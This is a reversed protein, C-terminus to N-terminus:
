TYVEGFISLTLATAAAAVAYLVEGKEIWLEGDFEAKGGSADVSTAPLIVDEDDTDGHWLKLTRATVSTNVAVIYTIKTRHVATYVATNTAPVQGNYLKQGQANM